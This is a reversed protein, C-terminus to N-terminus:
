RNATPEPPTAAAAPGALFSFAQALPNPPPEPALPPQEPLIAPSSATRLEGLKNRRKALFYYGGSYLQIARDPDGEALRYANALYPVGYTLNIEPDLLGHPPGDYGMSRATAHKIQMLGYCHHHVAEPRYRSERRVVRHIFDEPVGHAKALRTILDDYRSRPESQALSVSPYVLLAVLAGTIGRVM